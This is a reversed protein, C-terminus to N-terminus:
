KKVASARPTGEIYYDRWNFKGMIQTVSWFASEEEKVSELLVRVISYFSKSYKFQQDMVAYAKIISVVREDTFETDKRIQKDLKNNKIEKLKNYIEPTFSNQLTKVHLLCCWVM